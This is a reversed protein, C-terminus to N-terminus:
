RLVGDGERDLPREEGPRRATRDERMDLADRDKIYDRDREVMDRDRDLLNRDREIEREVASDVAPRDAEERACGVAVLAALVMSLYVLKM